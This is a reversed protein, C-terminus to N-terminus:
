HFPIQFMYFFDAM